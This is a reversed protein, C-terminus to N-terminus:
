AEGPPEERLLRLLAVRLGPLDDQVTRWLIAPDSRWYVHVTQNRAIRFARWPLEPHEQAFADGLRASAEGIIVLQMMVAHMTKPDAAFEAESMGAVYQEADPAAVLM